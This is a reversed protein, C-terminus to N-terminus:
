ATAESAHLAGSLLQDVVGQRQRRLASLQRQLLALERDSVGLVKAIRIQEALPPLRLTLAGLDDYYIRVRVSGNGASTVFQEWRASRRFHDFFGPDLVSEVCSFVVYDPSVLAEGEGGWRALSGINLRMPNYAFWDRRVIKYVALSSGITRERMPIMGQVKNVGMVADARLGQLNRLTSHVTVERVPCVPWDAPSSDPFSIRGTLLGEALEQKLTAKKAILSELGRISADWAAVRKCIAAQESLPPLLLPMARLQSSNISALNTSKKACGLFYQRGMRSSTACALYDPMARARDARVAFVHNQHLCNPLEGRWVSGRGLKDSDGGETLLLDGEVLSYRGVETRAVNVEKIQRLDLFGDQVNAVRLYPLSVADKMERRGLALGTRVQAVEGLTARTWGSPLQPDVLM